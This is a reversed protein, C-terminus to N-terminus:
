KEFAISSITAPTLQHNELEKEFYPQTDANCAILFKKSNILSRAM